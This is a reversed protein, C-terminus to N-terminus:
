LLNECILTTRGGTAGKFNWRANVSAISRPSKAVLLAFDENTMTFELEKDIGFMLGADLRSLTFAVYDCYTRHFTYKFHLTAEFPQKPIQYVAKGEYRQPSNKRLLQRGNKSFYVYQSVESKQRKLSDYPRIVNRNYGTGVQWNGELTGDKLQSVLKNFNKASMYYENQGSTFHAWFMSRYGYQRRKM